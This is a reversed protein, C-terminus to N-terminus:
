DRESIQCWVAISVIHEDLIETETSVAIARGEEHSKDRCHKGENTGVTGNVHPSSILFADVTTGCDNSAEINRLPRRPNAM